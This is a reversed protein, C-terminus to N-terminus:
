RGAARREEVLLLVLDIVTGAGRAGFTVRMPIGTGIM